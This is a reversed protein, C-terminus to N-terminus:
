AFRWLSNLRELQTNRRALIAQAQRHFAFKDLQGAYRKVQLDAWRVWWDAYIREERTMEDPKGQLILPYVSSAIRSQHMLLRKKQPSERKHEYILRDIGELAQRTLLMSHWFAERHARTIYIVTPAPAPTMM